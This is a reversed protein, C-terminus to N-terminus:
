LVKSDRNIVMRIQWTPRYAPYNLLDPILDMQLMLFGAMRTRIHFLTRVLVLVFLGQFRSLLVILPAMLNRHMDNMILIRNPCRTSCPLKISLHIATPFTRALVKIQALSAMIELGEEVISAEAVIQEETVVIAPLCKVIFNGRFNLLDALATMGGIQRQLGCIHISKTLHMKTDKMKIWPTLHLKPHTGISNSTSTPHAGEKSIRQKPLLPHEAPNTKLFRPTKRPLFPNSIGKKQDIRKLRIQLKESSEQQLLGQAQPEKRGRLFILNSHVRIAEAENMPIQQLQIYTAGPLVARRTQATTEKLRPELVPGATEAVVRLEVAEGLNLYLHASCLQLYTLFPCGNIKEM